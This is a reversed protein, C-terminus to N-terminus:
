SWLNSPAACGGWSDWSDWSDVIDRRQAAMPAPRLTCVHKAPESVEVRNQAVAEGPRRGVDREGDDILLAVLVEGAVAVALERQCRDGLQERREGREDRAFFADAVEVLRREADVARGHTIQQAVGCPQRELGIPWPAVRTRPPRVRVEAVLQEALEDRRAGTEREPVVESFRHTFRQTHM